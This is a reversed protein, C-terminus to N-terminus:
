GKRSELVLCAGLHGGKNVMRTKAQQVQFIPEIHPITLTAM